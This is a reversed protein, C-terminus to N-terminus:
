LKDKDYKLSTLAHYQTLACLMSSEISPMLSAWSKYEYESDVTLLYEDEANEVMYKNIDIGLANDAIYKIAADIAGPAVTNNKENVFM